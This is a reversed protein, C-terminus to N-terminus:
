LWMKSLRNHVIRPLWQLSILGLHTVQSRIQLSHSSSIAQWSNNRYLWMCLRKPHALQFSRGLYKCIKWTRLTRVWKGQARRNPIPHRSAVTTLSELGHHLQRQACSLQIQLCSRYTCVQALFLSSGIFSVVSPFTQIYLTIAYIVLSWVQRTSLVNPESSVLIWAIILFGVMLHSWACGLCNLCNKCHSHRIDTELLIEMGHAQCGYSSSVIKM